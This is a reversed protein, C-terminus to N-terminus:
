VVIKYQCHQAFALYSRPVVPEECLGATPHPHLRVHRDHVIRPARPRVADDRHVVHQRGGLVGTQDEVALLLRGARTGAVRRASRDRRRRDARVVEVIVAWTRGGIAAPGLLRWIGVIRVAASIRVRIVHGRRVV